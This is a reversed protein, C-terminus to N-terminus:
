RAAIREMLLRVCCGAPFSVPTRGDPDCGSVLHDQHELDEDESYYTPYMSDGTARQDSISAMVTVDLISM